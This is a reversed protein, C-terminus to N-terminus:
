AKIPILSKLKLLEERRNAPTDGSYLIVTKINPDTLVEFCGIIEDDPHPAVIITEKKTEKEKTTKMTPTMAKEFTM